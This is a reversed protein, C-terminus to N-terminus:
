EMENIDQVNIKRVQLMTLVCGIVTALFIALPYWVYVEMAKIDFEIKSAGMYQFVRGSTQQSFATGTLTGILIGIFLVLAVRKTQWRIIASNSFGMAKLMGIEGKERLLFMKQMLVVILISITIAVMLVLGKLGNLSDTIGGLVNNLYERVTMVKDKSYIKETKKIAKDIDEKSPNGKLRIQAGFAGSVASYDLDADQVFRIGEGMNNMSQYIATVIYPKEEENELVYITDGIEADLSEAILHTIAVENELVPPEGEDYFYEETSSGLGQLAMTKCSKDGHKLSFRFMVEMHIRKVNVNNKQLNEEIDEMYKYFAEKEGSVIIETIEKDDGIFYDSQAMGFWPIIKESQLTNITNLLMVVLWISIMSTIALVIYKKTESLVDNCAMFTTPRMKWKSLRLVGKKQFREGNNGSRIADLPTMKKIKGTSFYAFGLVILVVIISVVVSLGINKGGQEILMSQTVESLLMESFPTSGIGGLVAGVVAIMFYKSLYLKRVSSDRLGIAKMIGIEKYDENITFIITFRLMVASIVVMLISVVLLVGAILMNMIYSTEVLKMSDGFIVNLNSQNYVETFKELDECWISHIAVPHLDCERSIEKYDNESILIRKAGMMDSGLVYDKMYGNIKFEKKQGKKYEISISDGTQLGNKKMIGLSLYVTGDEIKTIEQNKEDFFKQQQISCTNLFMTNGALSIEKKGSNMKLRYQEMLFSSDYTYRKVEKQTELFEEIKTRNDIAGEGSDEMSFIVFDSVNSKKAFNEMGKLIVQMNNISGAIFMTALFIFILLIFNMSKKRKLDKKLIKTYM